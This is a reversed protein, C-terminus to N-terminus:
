NLDFCDENQEDRAESEVLNIKDFLDSITLGETLVKRQKNWKEIKEIEDM